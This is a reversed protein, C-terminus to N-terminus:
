EVEATAKGDAYHLTVKGINLLNLDEWTIANGDKDAVRLDWKPAEEKPDFTIKVSEGDDLTDKGLM